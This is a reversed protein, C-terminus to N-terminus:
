SPVPWAEAGPGRYAPERAADPGPVVHNLQNSKGIGLQAIRTAGLGTIRRGYLHVEGLTPHVEDLLMKFLTTKGAGNPGIVAHISNTSYRSPVHRRGRASGGYHKRLTPKWHPRGQRPAFWHRPWHCCMPGRCGPRRRNAAAARAPALLDRIEGAIGRRLAIM